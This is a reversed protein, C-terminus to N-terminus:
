DPHLESKRRTILREKFNKTAESFQAITGENQKLGVIKGLEVLLIRDALTELALYRAELDEISGKKNIQDLIYTLIRENVQQINDDEITNSKVIDSLNQMYDMVEPWYKPELHITHPAESKSSTASPRFWSLVWQILKM